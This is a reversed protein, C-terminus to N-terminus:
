PADNSRVGRSFPMFPAMARASSSAALVGAFVDGAGTTDIPEVATAIALATAGTVLIRM